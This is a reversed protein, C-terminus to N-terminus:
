SPIRDVGPKVRIVRTLLVGANGVIVRGPEFMLTVDWGTTVRAVMAGYDAPSPPVSAPAQLARRARRRSRRAHDDHGAARLTARDARRDQAFAAELPALDTLQSGIHVAVGRM